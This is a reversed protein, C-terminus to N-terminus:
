AGSLEHSGPTISRSPARSGISMPPAATPSGLRSSISASRSRPNTPLRLWERAGRIILQRKEATVAAAPRGYLDSTRTKVEAFVLTDGHRCVIDIEGGDDARFNRYLVNCGGHLGLWRAALREGERGLVDKDWLRGDPHEISVPRRFTPDVSRVVARLIPNM